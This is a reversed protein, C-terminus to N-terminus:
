ARDSYRSQIIDWTAKAMVARLGNEGCVFVADDREFYTGPELALLLEEDDLGSLDEESM